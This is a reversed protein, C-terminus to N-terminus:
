TPTKDIYHPHQYIHTNNHKPPSLMPVPSSAVPSTCHQKMDDCISRWPTFEIKRLVRINSSITDAFVQRKPIKFMEDWSVWVLESKEIYASGINKYKLFNLVKKFRLPLDAHYPVEVLFMRYVNGKRTTGLVMMSLKKVRDRISHPSNCICGLTEEYFERTATNIPDGNDVLEAKGGFDSFVGDRADKGLLFVLEGQTNRSVPLIGASHDM